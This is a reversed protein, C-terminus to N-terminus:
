KSSRNSFLENQPCPLSIQDTSSWCTSTWPTIESFFLFVHHRELQGIWERNSDRSLTTPDFWFYYFQCKYCISSQYAQFRFVIYLPTVCKCEFMEYQQKLSSAGVLLDIDMTNDWQFVSLCSTAGTTCKIRVRMLPVNKASFYYIGIEYEKTQDSRSEFGCNIASSALMTIM